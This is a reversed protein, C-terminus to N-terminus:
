SPRRWTRGPAGPLAVTLTTGHGPHSSARISGGHAVVLNKAITLGLGSGRSQSGKYFRDFAHALDDPTMGTGTDRVEVSVGGEAGPAVSVTVNGGAPTHRLANSILNGLVERIRMADVEITPLAGSVDMELTVNRAAADATFARAADTVLGAFDTPEIQLQLAGSESLALTRLDDVLRSILRTEELLQQLETDSRPYVGDLLGELKGQMVTLPTRLEHAIDAMLDRRVRDNEHLRETMTNFARALARIAPPGHEDVRVEYDGAAVRDAADMVGGIPMAVRRMARFAAFFALWLIGLPILLAAGGRTGQPWITAALWALMATGGTFLALVAFAAFAMRRVFRSRM